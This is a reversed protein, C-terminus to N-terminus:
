STDKRSLYSTFFRFGSPDFGKLLVFRASPAGDRTATALVMEDPTAPGRAPEDYWRHFQDIPDPAFDSERLALTTDPHDSPTDNQKM